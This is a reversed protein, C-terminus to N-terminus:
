LDGIELTGYITNLTARYRVVSEVQAVNFALVGIVGEVRLLVMRAAAEFQAPDFRDWVTQRTPVGRNLAYIMEGLQASMASISNQSTADAGSVMALNGSNDRYLDYSTNMALSKTM